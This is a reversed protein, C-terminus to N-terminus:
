VTAPPAFGTGNIFNFEPVSNYLTCAAVPDGFRSVFAADHSPWGLAAKVYRGRGRIAAEQGSVVRTVMRPRTALDSSFPFSPQM